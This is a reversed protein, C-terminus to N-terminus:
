FNWMVIESLKGLFLLKMERKSARKHKKLEDEIRQHVLRQERALENEGNESSCCCCLCSTM